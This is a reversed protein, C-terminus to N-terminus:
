NCTTDLNTNVSFFILCKKFLKKIILSKTHEDHKYKGLSFDKRHQYLNLAKTRTHLTISHALALPCLKCNVCSTCSWSRKINLDKIGVVVVSIHINTTITITCVSCLVDGLSAWTMCHLYVNIGKWIGQRTVEPVTRSFVQEMKHAWWYLFNRFSQLCHVTNCLRCYTILEVFNLLTLCTAHPLSILLNMWLKKPFKTSLPLKSSMLLYTSLILRKRGIWFYENKTKKKKM